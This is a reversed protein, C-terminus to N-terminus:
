QQSMNLFDKSIKRLNQKLQYRMLNGNEKKSGKENVFQRYWSSM